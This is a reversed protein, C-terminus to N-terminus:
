STPAPGGDDAARRAPTRRAAPGAVQEILEGQRRAAEQPDLEGRERQREIADLRQAVAGPGAERQQTQEHVQEVVWTTFRLPAVPLLALEKILGM